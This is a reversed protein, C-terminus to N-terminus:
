QQFFSCFVEEDIEALFYPTSKREPLTKGGTANEVTVLIEPDSDAEHDELQFTWKKSKIIEGNQLGNLVIELTQIKETEAERSVRIGAIKVEDGQLATSNLCEAMKVTSEIMCCGLLENFLEALETVDRFVTNKLRYDM